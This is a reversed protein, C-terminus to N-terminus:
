VTLLAKSITLSLKLKSGPIIRGICAVDSAVAVEVGAMSIAPDALSAGSEVTDPKGITRRDKGSAFFVTYGKAPLSINPISWKKKNAPDDTLFYGNLSKTSSTPNKQGDSSTACTPALASIHSFTM